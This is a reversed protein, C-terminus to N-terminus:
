EQSVLCEESRHARMFIAGTMLAPVAVVFGIIPLVTVGIILFALGLFLLFVGVAWNSLVEYRCDDKTMM